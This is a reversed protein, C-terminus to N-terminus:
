PHPTSKAQWWRRVGRQVFWWVVLALLAGAIVDSVYHVGVFVRAVGVAAASALLLVQAWRRRIVAAAPIAIAFALTAHDSPFSKENVDKVILQRVPHQVFPRERFAVVGIFQSVAYAIVLTGILEVSILAREAPLTRVLVLVVLAVLVFLLGTAAFMGLVDLMPWRGVFGNIWFTVALDIAM